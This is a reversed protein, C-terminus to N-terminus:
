SSPSSSSSLIKRLWEARWRARQAWNSQPFKRTTEQYYILASNYDGQKEYFEAIRFLKEAGRERLIKLEKKATDVYDSQSNQHIFEKLAREAKERLKEDKPFKESKKVWTLAQYFRAKDVLPSTPYERSLEEFERAAEEFKGAQLYSEGIRFKIEDAKEWYPSTELIMRYIEAAREWNSKSFFEKTKSWVGRESKTFFSDAIRKLRRIVEEGKEWEPYKKLVKEYELAATYPDGLKELCDGALFQASPAYPSRPYYKVLKRFERLAKKWDGDKYIEQAYEWQEEPTPKPAYKPNIWRGTEPTWEWYSFLSSPFLFSIWILLLIVRKM